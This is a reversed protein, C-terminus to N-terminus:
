DEQFLLDIFNALNEPDIPKALYFEAGLKIGQNLHQRDTKVSLMIVPTAAYEGAKIQKLLDFGSMKPMMVDSIVLDPRMQGVKELAEEGSYVKETDLDMGDLLACLLDCSQESDDVVLVRKKSM